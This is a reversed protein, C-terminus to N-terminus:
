PATLRITSVSYPPLTMTLDQPDTMTVGTARKPAPGGARTLQFLEAQTYVKGNKIVVSASIPQDTKNIAVLVMANPNKSDTSAYISTDVPNDTMAHVSTDGFAGHKGDFNRYMEIGAGLFAEKGDNPWESAAFVGFRGFTGLVDAEAVGGSIDDGGGYQYETFALKIGPDYKKIKEMTRPLLNIAKHGMSQTVWSNEIYSPDWLSRPADLRARVLGPTAGPDVIRKGGGQAEPYWHLDLVDVLRKGAKKDAAAMAQLNTEMVDPGNADPANQLTVYGNWGYSVFGFVQTSPEVNKIATAYDISKQILEAYTVHDPHVEKHTDQWLDPENDLDFWIPRNADTAGYPFKTKVWNVFEDQYVVPAKPDPTLTFPANKAPVTKHFRTQLYNPGSNRVDGDGKKDASVFGAMPVTLVIGANHDAAAKIGPILSGGPVEGGGMFNDNQFHWDNGANSANTVWNYATLRNGGSRTFTCNSFPGELQRNTGYIFRSIPAVDDGADVSFHVSEAAAASSIAALVVIFFSSLAGATPKSRM